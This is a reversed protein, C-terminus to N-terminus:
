ILRQVRRIFFNHEICSHSLINRCLALLIILTESWMYNDASTFSLNIFMHDSAKKKVPWPRYVIKRSSPAPFRHFFTPAKRGSPLFLSKIRTHGKWGRKARAYVDGRPYFWKKASTDFIVIKASTDFHLREYSRTRFEAYWAPKYHAFHEIQTNHNSRVSPRFVRLNLM